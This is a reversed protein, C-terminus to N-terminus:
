ESLALTAQALPARDPQGRDNGVVLLARHAKPPGGAILVLPM